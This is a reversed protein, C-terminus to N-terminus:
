SNDRTLTKILGQLEFADADEYGDHLLKTCTASVEKVFSDYAIRMSNQGNIYANKVTHSSHLSQENNTTIFQMYEDATRIKCVIEWENSVATKVSINTTEINEKKFKIPLKNHKIYDGDEAAEIAERLIM